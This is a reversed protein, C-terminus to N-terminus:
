SDCLHSQFYNKIWYTNRSPRSQAPCEGLVPSLATFMDPLTEAEHPKCELPPSSPVSKLIQFSAKKEAQTFCPHPSTSSTEKPQRLWGEAELCPSVIGPPHVEKDNQLCRLCHSKM